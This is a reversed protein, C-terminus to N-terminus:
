STLGLWRLIAPTLLGVAYGAGTGFTAFRIVEYRMASIRIRNRAAEDLLALMDTRTVTIVTPGAATIARLEDGTM